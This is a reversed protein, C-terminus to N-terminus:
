KNPRSSLQSPSTKAFSWLAPEGRYCPAIGLDAGRCKPLLRSINAPKTRRKTYSRRDFSEPASSAGGIWQDIRLEPNITIARISLALRLPFASTIASHVCACSARARPCAAREVPLVPGCLLLFKADREAFRQTRRPEIASTKMVCGSNWVGTEISATRYPWRM